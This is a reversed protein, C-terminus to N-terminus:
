VRNEFTLEAVIKKYQSLEAEMEKIRKVDSTEMGGYKAKWNYFTADSIGLERCVDKAPIGSEQKKISAVIQSETFRTRKM